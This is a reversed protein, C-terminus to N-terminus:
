KEVGVLEFDKELEKVTEMDGVESPEVWCYDTHEESLEVEDSEVKMLFPHLQYKGSRTGVVHSDGTRIVTGILGTEEKLERLVAEGFEEGDRLHGGPFDWKGPFVDADNGRKLLLFRDKEPHYTVAIAIDDKVREDM